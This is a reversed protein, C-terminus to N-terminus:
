DDMTTNTMEIEEDKNQKHVNFKNLSSVMKKKRPAMMDGTSINIVGKSIFCSYMPLFFEIINM